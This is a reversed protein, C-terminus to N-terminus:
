ILRKEKFAKFWIGRVVADSFTLHKAKLADALGILYFPKYDYDPLLEDLSVKVADPDYKKNVTNYKASRWLGYDKGKLRLIYTCKASASQKKVFDTRVEFKNTLNPDDKNGLEMIKILASKNRDEVFNVPTDYMIIKVKLDKIRTIKRSPIVNFYVFYCNFPDTANALFLVLPPNKEPRRFITYVFNFFMDVESKLERGKYDIFEDYIIAFTGSYDSSKYKGANNLSILYGAPEEDALIMKSSRGSADKVTDITVDVGTLDSLLKLNLGLTDIETQYRRLYVFTKHEAHAKKIAWVLSNVTKGVGRAGVIFYYQTVPDLLNNIQLYYNTNDNLANVNYSMKSKSSVQALASSKSKKSSLGKVSHIGKKSSKVSAM